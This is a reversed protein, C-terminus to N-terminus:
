LRIVEELVGWYAIWAAVSCWVAFRTTKECFVEQAPTKASQRLLLTGLGMATALPIVTLIYSFNGWMALAAAFYIEDHRLQDRGLLFFAVVNVFYLTALTLFGSTAREWLPIYAALEATTVGFLQHVWGTLLGTAALLIPVFFPIRGEKLEFQLAGLLLFSFWWLHMAQWVPGHSLRESFLCIITVLTLAGAYFATSVLQKGPQKMSLLLAAM